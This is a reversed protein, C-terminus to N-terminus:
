NCVGISPNKCIKSGDIWLASSFVPKTTTINAPLKAGTFNAGSCYTASNMVAYLMNANTFDANRLSTGKLVASSLDANNLKAGTMLAYSLNARTLVAGSLNVNSLNKDSGRFTGINFTSLNAGSLDCGACSGTNKLKTLDVVNFANADSCVFGLNLTFVAVSIAKILTTVRM